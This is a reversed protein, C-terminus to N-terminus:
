QQDGMAQDKISRTWVESRCLPGLCGTVRLETASVLRMHARFTKGDDPNYLRGNRWGDPATAFGWLIPLGILARERLAPARNRVDQTHGQTFRADAWALRGCPTGDGCDSIDVLAGYRVERWRGALDGLDAAGAYDAMVTCVILVLFAPHWM